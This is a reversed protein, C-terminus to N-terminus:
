LEVRRLLRLGAAALLQEVFPGAEGRQGMFRVEALECARALRPMARQVADENGRVLGLLHLAAMGPSVASAESKSKPLYPVRLIREAKLGGAPVSTAPYPLFEGADNVVVLHRSWASAGQAQFARALLTQGTFADGALVSVRDGERVAEGSLFTVDTRSLSVTRHIRSALIEAILAESQERAVSEENLHLDFYRGKKELRFALLPEIGPQFNKAEFGCEKMLPLLSEAADVTFLCDYCSIAIM